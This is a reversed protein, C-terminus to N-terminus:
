QQFSEMAVRSYQDKSFREQGTQSIATRQLFFYAVFFTTDFTVNLNM